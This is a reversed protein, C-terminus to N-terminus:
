ESITPWVAKFAVKMLNYVERRLPVSTACQFASPQFKQKYRMKSSRYGQRIIHDRKPLVKPISKSGKALVRADCSEEHQEDDQGNNEVRGYQIPNFGIPKERRSFHFSFRSDDYYFQHIRRRLVNMYRKHCNSSESRKIHYDKVSIQM